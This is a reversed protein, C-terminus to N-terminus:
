VVTVSLHARSVGACRGLGVPELKEPPIVDVARGYCSTIVHVRTHTNKGRGMDWNIVLILWSANTGM